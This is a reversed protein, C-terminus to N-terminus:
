HCYRKSTNLVTLICCEEWENKRGHDKSQVSGLEGHPFSLQSFFLQSGDELTSHLIWKVILPTERKGGVNKLKATETAEVAARPALMSPSVIEFHWHQKLGTEVPPDFRFDSIEGKPPCPTRKFIIEMKNSQLIRAYNLCYGINSMECVIIPETIFNKMIEPSLIADM